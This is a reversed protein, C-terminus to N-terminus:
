AGGLLDGSRPVSALLVPLPTVEAARKDFQYIWAAVIQTEGNVNPIVAEIVPSDTATSSPDAVVLVPPPTWIVRSLASGGFDVIPITFNAAVNANTLNTTAGKPEPSISLTAPTDTTPALVSVTAFQVLSLYVSDFRITITNTDGTGDSALSLVVRVLNSPATYGDGGLGITQVVGATPQDPLQVTSAVSVLCTPFYRALVDAGRGDRCM